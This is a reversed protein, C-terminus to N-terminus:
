LSNLGRSTMRINITVNGSHRNSKKTALQWIVVFTREYHVKCLLIIDVNTIFIHCRQMSGDKRLMRCPNGLGVSPVVTGPQYPPFPSPTGGFLGCPKSLRFTRCTGLSTRTREDLSPHAVQQMTNLQRRRRCWRNSRKTRSRIVHAAWNVTSLPRRSPVSM